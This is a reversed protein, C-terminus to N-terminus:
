GWNRTLLFQEFGLNLALFISQSILRFDITFILMFSFYGCFRILVRIKVCAFFRIISILVFLSTVSGFRLYTAFTQRAQRVERLRSSLLGSCGGHSWSSGRVQGFNGDEEGTARREHVDDDSKRGRIRDINEKNPLIPSSRSEQM